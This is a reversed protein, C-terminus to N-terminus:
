PKTGICYLYHMSRVYMRDGQFFPNGRICLDMLNRSVITSDPGALRAVTMGHTDHGVFLHGDAVSAAAFQWGPAHAMTKGADDAVRLSPPIEWTPKVREKGGIREPQQQGAADVPWYFLSINPERNFHTPYYVYRDYVVSCHWYPGKVSWMLETTLKGDKWGLRVRDFVKDISTIISDGDGCVTAGRRPDINGQIGVKFQAATEGTAADVITRAPFVIFDRGNSRLPVIGATGRGICGNKSLDGKWIEKGTAKDVALLERGGVTYYLVDGILLPSGCSAFSGTTPGVTPTRISWVLKGDLDFCALAGLGTQYWVHRGDSLPTPM